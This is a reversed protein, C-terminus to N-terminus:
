GPLLTLMIVYPEKRAQIVLQGARIFANESRDTYFQKERANYIVGPNTEAQWTGNDIIADDFEESWLLKYDAAIVAARSVTSLIVVSWLLNKAIRNM